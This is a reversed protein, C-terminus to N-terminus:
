SYPRLKSDNAFVILRKVCRSIAVYFNQPDTFKDANLVIVTDFEVGKTLLATGVCRGYMKRGVSRIENRHKRM